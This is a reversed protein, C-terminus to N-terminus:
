EIFVQLTDAVQEALLQCGFDNFHVGDEKMIKDKDGKMVFTYLDNVPVGLRNVLEISLENYRIVDENYRTFDGAKQHSANAKEEDVPTTTAWIVMCEPWCYHIYKIIREINEVYLTESVLKRRSDYPINKIDHLGSNLHIIDAPKNKIWRPANALLNVTHQTNGEPGWINNGEPLYLEVYPQYDLRISDGLLTINKGKWVMGIAPSSFLGLAMSGSYKLFARRSNKLSNM